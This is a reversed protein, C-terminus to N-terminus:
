DKVHIKEEDGDAPDDPDEGDLALEEEAAAAAANVVDGFGYRKICEETSLMLDIIQCLTGMDQWNLGAQKAIEQSLKIHYATLLVANNSAAVTNIDM